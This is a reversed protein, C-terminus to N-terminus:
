FHFFDRIYFNAGIVNEYTISQLFILFKLVGKNKLKTLVSTLLNNIKKCLIVYSFTCPAFKTM